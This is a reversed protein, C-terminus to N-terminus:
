NYSYVGILESSAGNAYVKRKKQLPYGNVGYQYTYVETSVITGDAIKFVKKGPNNVHMKVWPLYPHRVLVNDPNKKDDFDSYETTESLEEGYGSKAPVFTSEKIVNGKNDYDFRITYKEMDGAASNTEWHEEKLRNGEFTYYCRADVENKYNLEETRELVGNKYYYNVPSSADDTTLQRIQGAENYHFRYNIEKVVSPDNQVFQWQSHFTIIKGYDDYTMAQYDISSYTIKVVKTATPDTLAPNVIVSIDDSNGLAQDDVATLRFIYAGEILNSVSLTVSDENQLTPTGPGSVLTWHQAKVTGDSDSVSGTLLVMAEPLTVVKDPGANVTPPISQSSPNRNEKECSWAFFTFLLVTTVALKGAEFLHLTKM